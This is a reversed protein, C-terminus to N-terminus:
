HFKFYKEEFMKLTKNYKDTDSKKQYIELVKKVSQYVWYNDYSYVYFIKLLELLAKKEDDINLYSLALLYKFEPSLSNIVKEPIKEINEITEKYKKNDFNLKVLTLLLEKTFYNEVDRNKLKDILYNKFEDYDNKQLYNKTAFIYEKLYDKDISSALKDIGEVDNQMKLINLKKLILTEDKNNAILFDLVLNAETFNQTYNFCEFMTLLQKNDFKNLSDKILDLFITKSETLYINRLYIDAKYFKAELSVNEEFVREGQELNGIKIFIKFFEKLIVINKQKNNQLKINKEILDFNSIVKDFQNKEQLSLVNLYVIDQYYPNNKSGLLLDSQIIANDYDGIKYYAFTILYKQYDNQNKKKEFYQVIEKYNEARLLSIAIKNQIYENDEYKLAYEKYVKYSEKYNKINFYSNGLQLLVEKKRKDTVKNQLYQKYNEIAFKYEQLIFHTEGKEVFSEYYIENKNGIKQLESFSIIAKDYEKANKQCIGQMFLVKDIDKDNGFELVWKDLVISANKYNKENYCVEGVKYLITKRLDEKLFSIRDLFNFYDMIDQSKQLEVCIKFFLSFYDAELSNIGVKKFLNYSKEKDGTKYYLDALILSSEKDNTIKEFIKISEKLKHSEIYLIGIKKLIQNDKENKYIKNLLDIAENYNKKVIYVDSTLLYIEKDYYDINKYFFDIVNDYEKLEKLCILYNKFIKQKEENKNTEELMSFLVQKLNNFDKEELFYNTLFIKVEKKYKQFNNDEFYEKSKKLAINTNKLNLNNQISLFILKEIRNKDEIYSLAKNLYKESDNYNLIKNYALALYYDIDKEYDFNKEKKLELLNKIADSYKKLNLRSLAIFFLAKKTFVSDKNNEVFDSLNKEALEYFGDKYFSLAVRYDDLESSFVNSLFLVFVIFFVIKKTLFM